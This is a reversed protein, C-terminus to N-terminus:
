CSFAAETSQQWIRFDGSIEWGSLHERLRCSMDM